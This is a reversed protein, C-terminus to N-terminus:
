PMPSASGGAGPGTSSGDEASPVEIVTRFISQRSGLEDRVGLAITQQGRRVQLTRNKPVAAYGYIVYPKENTFNLQEDELNQGTEPYGYINFSDTWIQDNGWYHIKFKFVVRHM